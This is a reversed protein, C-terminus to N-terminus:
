IYGDSKTVTQKYHEDAVLFAFKVQYDAVYAATRATLAKTSTDLKDLKAPSQAALAAGTIAFTLVLLASRGSIM